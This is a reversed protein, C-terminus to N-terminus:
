LYGLFEMTEDIDACYFMIAKVADDQSKRSTCSYGFDLYVGAAKGAYGRGDDYSFEVKGNPYVIRLRDITEGDGISLWLQPRGNCRPLKNM